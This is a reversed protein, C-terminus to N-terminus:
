RPKAAVVLLASGHRTATHGEIFTLTLLFPLALAFALPNIESDGLIFFIDHALTGFFGYTWKIRIPELGVDSLLVRVREPSYGERVHGVVGRAVGRRRELWQLLRLHRRGPDSPFTLILHGGPKLARALNALARRDDEIHELVDTNTILDYEANANLELLDGRQFSVNDIGLTAAAACCHDVREQLIEIGRVRWGPRLRSFHLAIDGRGTGADLMRVGNQPLGLSAIARLVHYLRIRGSIHIEGLLRYGLRKISSSEVAAKEIGFYRATSANL